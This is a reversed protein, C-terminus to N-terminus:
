KLQSPYIQHGIVGDKNFTVTKFCIKICFIHQVRVFYLAEEKSVVM